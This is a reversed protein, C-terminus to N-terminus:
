TYVVAFLWDCTTDRICSLFWFLAVCTFTYKILCSTRTCIIYNVITDVILNEQKQRHADRCGRAVFDCRDGSAEHRLAVSSSCATLLQVESCKCPPWIHINHYSFPTSDLSMCCRGGPKQPATQKQRYKSGSLVVATDDGGGPDGAPVYGDPGSTGLLM